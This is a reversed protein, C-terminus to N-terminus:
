TKITDSTQWATQFVRNLFARNPFARNPFAENWTNKNHPCTYFISAFRRAPDRLGCAREPLPPHRM